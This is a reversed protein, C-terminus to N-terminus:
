HPTGGSNSLQGAETGPVSKRDHPLVQAQEMEKFTTKNNITM